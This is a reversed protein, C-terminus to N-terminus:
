VAYSIRMLSQLESTHEESRVGEALEAHDGALEADGAVLCADPAGDFEGGELCQLGLLRLATEDLLRQVAAAEEAGPAGAAPALHKRGRLRRHHFAIMRLLHAAEAVQRRELGLLLSGSWARCERARTRGSTRCGRLDSSRRTPFSYTM